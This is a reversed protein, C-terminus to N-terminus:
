AMRSIEDIPRMAYYTMRYGGLVAALLLLPLMIALVILLTSSMRQTLDTSVYCRLWVEQGNPLTVPADLLYWNTERGNNRVRLEGEKLRVSFSRKGVLLNGDGDLVTVWAGSDSQTDLHIDGDVVEIRERAENMAARLIDYYYDQSFLHQSLLLATLLLAVILVIFIAYWLTIRKKISHVYIM